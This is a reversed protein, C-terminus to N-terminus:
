TIINNPNKVDGSWKKPLGDKSDLIACDVLSFYWIVTEATVIILGICIDFKLAILLVRLPVIFRLVKCNLPRVLRLILFYTKLIIISPNSNPVSSGLKCEHFSAKLVATHWKSYLPWNTKRIDIKFNSCVWFWILLRPKKKFSSRKLKYRLAGHSLQYNTKPSTNKLQYSSCHM